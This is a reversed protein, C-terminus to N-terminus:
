TPVAPDIDRPPPPCKGFGRLDARRGGRAFHRRRRAKTILPRPRRAPNALSAHRGSGTEKDLDELGVAYPRSNRRL